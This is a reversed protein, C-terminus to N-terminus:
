SSKVWVIKTKRSLKPWVSGLILAEYPACGDDGNKHTKVTGGFGTAQCFIRYLPVSAYSLGITFFVIALMGAGLSANDSYTAGQRSRHSSSSGDGSANSKTADANGAGDEPAATKRAHESYAHSKDSGSSGSLARALRRPAVAAIERLSNPATAAQQAGRAAPPPFTSHRARWFPVGGLVSGRNHSAALGGFLRRSACAHGCFAKLRVTKAGLGLMVMQESHAGIARGCSASRSGTLCAARVTGSSLRRQQGWGLPCSSGRMLTAM